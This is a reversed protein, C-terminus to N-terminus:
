EANQALTQDLFTTVKREYEVPRETIGGIHNDGPIAWYTSRHGALAAYRTALTENPADASSILLM